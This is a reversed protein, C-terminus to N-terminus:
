DFHRPVASNLPWYAIIEPRGSQAKVVGQVLAYDIEGPWGIRSIVHLAHQFDDDYRGLYDPHVELMLRRGMRAAKIPQYSIQVSTGIEVQAYLVEIDHPYMRLCGYSVRRGVGLPRNTGHVGYGPASLGLWYDGLPNRPGPQVVRPLGPDQLRLGEPVRWYPSQKKVIVRFAGEPTQRGERGIGLPYMHVGYRGDKRRTIHFLRLEALNVNLGEKAGYPMIAKGPLLIETGGGPIWPNVSRNSNVLADYGYGTRLALEMLTEDGITTTTTVEGSVIPFASEEVVVAACAPQPTLLLVFMMLVLILNM